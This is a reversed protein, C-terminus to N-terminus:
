AQAQTTTSVQIVSGDPFKIIDGAQHAPQELVWELIMQAPTDARLEGCNFVAGTVINRYLLTLFKRNNEYLVWKAM